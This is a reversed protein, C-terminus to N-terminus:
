IQQLNSPNDLKSRHGVLTHCSLDTDLSHTAGPRIKLAKVLWAAGEPPGPIQFIAGPRIKLAKVLWPAGEPPGPIQFIVGPRIKFAKEGIKGSKRM